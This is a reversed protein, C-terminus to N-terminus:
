DCTAGFSEKFSNLSQFTWSCSYTKLIAYPNEWGKKTDTMGIKWDYFLFIENGM